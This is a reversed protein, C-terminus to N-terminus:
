EVREVAELHVHVLPEEHVEVGPLYEGSGRRGIVISIISAFSRQLQRQTLFRLSRVEAREM